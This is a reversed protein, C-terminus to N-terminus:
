QIAFPVTALPQPHDAETLPLLWLHGQGLANHGILYRGDRSWGTPTLPEQSQLLLEASGAGSSAKIYIGFGGGRTSAFAVRTGDPSWVPSTESGDEAATFRM